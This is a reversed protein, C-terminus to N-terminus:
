RAPRRDITGDRRLAQPQRRRRNVERREEAHFDRTLWDRRERYRRDLEVRDTMAPEKRRPEELLSIM